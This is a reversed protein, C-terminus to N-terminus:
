GRNSGVPTSGTVERMCLPREVVSSLGRIPPCATGRVGQCTQRQEKVHKISNRSMNSATESVRIDQAQECTLRKRWNPLGQGAYKVHEQLEPM